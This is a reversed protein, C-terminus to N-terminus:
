QSKFLCRVLAFVNLTQATGLEVDSRFLMALLTNQYFKRMARIDGEMRGFGLTGTSISVTLDQDRVVWGRGPADDSVGPDPLSAGGVSFADNEIVAVGMHLGQITNTDFPSPPYFLIKYILRVLTLGRIDNQGLTATLEINGLNGSGIAIESISDVWFTSRAM